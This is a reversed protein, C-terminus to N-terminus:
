IFGDRHGHMVVYPQMLPNRFRYRYRRKGGTKELVFGRDETCFDHLHKAFNPTDYTKSMIETMPGRVDAPAFYGMEDTQALACAVLVQSYLNDRRQSMTALHYAKQTTQQADGLAQEIASAVHDSVIVTIDEDLAARAAHKALLHTYHPLGKSLEAIQAKADPDISMGLIGLGTEMIENLEDVSMRPMHVQVLAREVSEHERVLENVSDAVGVLVITAGVARDSLAKVTDAVSARVQESRIRDFEDIIVVVRAQGSLMRLSRLVDGTTLDEPLQEGVSLTKSFLSPQFGAAAREEVLEIENFIKRWLAAFTDASDCNIHPALLQGDPVHLTESLINALSTKGVGREGFLVAHQGRQNISDVVKRIQKKRGAFLKARDVPAAPRFVDGVQLDLRQAEHTMM